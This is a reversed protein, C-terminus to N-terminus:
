KGSPTKRLWAGIRERNNIAVVTLALAAVVCAGIATVGAAVLELFGPENCQVM